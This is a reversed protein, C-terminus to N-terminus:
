GDAERTMRYRWPSPLCRATCSGAASTRGSCWGTDAWGHDSGKGNSTLSRGFDSATFLVVRDELGLEELGRQFAFLSADLDSLLLPYVTGLNSHNDFAGKQCYFLQRELGLEEAMWIPRISRPTGTGWIKISEM